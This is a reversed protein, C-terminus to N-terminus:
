HRDGGSGGDRPAYPNGSQDPTPQYRGGGGSRQPQPMNFTPLPAVGAPPQQMMALQPNKELAKFFREENEQQRQKEQQQQRKRRQRKRTEINHIERRSFVTM